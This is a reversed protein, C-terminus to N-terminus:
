PRQRLDTEGAGAKPVDFEAKPVDLRYGLIMKILYTDTSTDIPRVGDVPHTTGQLAANGHLELMTDGPAVTEAGYVQIEFNGQAAGTRTMGLILTLPILGLAIVRRRGPVPV